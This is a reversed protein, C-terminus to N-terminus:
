SLIGFIFYIEGGRYSCQNVFYKKSLNQSKEPMKKMINVIRVKSAAVFPLFGLISILM